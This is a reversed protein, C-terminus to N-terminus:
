ASCDCDYLIILYWKGADEMFYFTQHIYGEHLIDVRQVTNNKYQDPLQYTFDKEVDHNWYGPMAKAVNYYVGDENKSEECFGEVIVQDKFFKDKAKLGMDGHFSDSFPFGFGEGSEVVCFVGPNHFRVFSIGPHYFAKVIDSEHYVLSDMNKDWYTTKLFHDIFVAFDASNRPDVDVSDTKDQQTEATTSGSGCSVLYLSAAVLLFYLSRKM